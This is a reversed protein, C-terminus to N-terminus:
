FLIGYDHCIQNRYRHAAVVISLAITIALPLFRMLYSYEAYLGLFVCFDYAYYFSLASSM